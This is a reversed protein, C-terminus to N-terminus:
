ESVGGVPLTVLFATRGDKSNVEVTGHHLAVVQKVVALGVGNGQVAHSEDAQYFKHFIKEQQDLPIESGFNVVEVQLQENQAAIHIQIEGTSPSFKIANDLLNIWVQKLLDENASINYEAFELDLSLHKKSWRDELLLVCARIQESLNFTEVDTLITQNEIKTLQLVNTAMDALRLSEEEIISLYADKQADTLNGRRILKAFGAISVIPTKFEHSFNNIFDSRLMETSELEQALKNFSDSLAVASPINQLPKGFSLRTKFNGNTLENLQHITKNIPQMPIKGILAVMIVGTLLSLLGMFLLLIKGGGRQVGFETLIGWRVLLYTLIGAILLTLFHICFFVVAFFFTLRVNQKQIKRQKKRHRM